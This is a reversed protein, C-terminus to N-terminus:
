TSEKKRFQRYVFIFGGGLIAANIAAVLADVLTNESAKIIPVFVFTHILFWVVFWGVYALWKM